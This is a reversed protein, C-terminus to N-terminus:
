RWGDMWAKIFKDVTNMMSKAKTELEKTLAEDNVKPMIAEEQLVPKVSRLTSNGIRTGMQIKEAAQKSEMIFSEIAYIWKMKSNPADAYIILEKENGTATASVLKFCNKQGGTNSIGFVLSNATILHDAKCEKRSQDVYYM